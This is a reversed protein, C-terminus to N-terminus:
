IMFQHRPSSDILKSLYNWGASKAYEQCASNGHKFWLYALLEYQPLYDILKHVVVKINVDIWITTFLWNIQEAPSYITGALRPQM